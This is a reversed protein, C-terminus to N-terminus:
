VRIQIAQWYPKQALGCIGPYGVSDVVREIELISLYRFLFDEYADRGYRFYDKPYRHEPFGFTPTSIILYGKRKLLRNLNDITIWPKDDHELMECCIILDFSEDKFKTLLDHANIVFDVGNGDLMDTGIYECGPFLSRTSGNIDLAGVELVRKPKLQYKDKVSRVWDLIQSTM